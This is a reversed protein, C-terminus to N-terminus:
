KEKRANFGKFWFHRAFRRIEDTSLSRSVNQNQWDRMLAGPVRVGDNCRKFNKGYFFVDIEKELNVDPQEPIVQTEDQIIAFEENLLEITPFQVYKPNNGYDYYVDWFDRNLDGHHWVKCTYVKNKQWSEDYPYLCKVQILRQKPQEQKVIKWKGYMECANVWEVPIFDKGPIGPEEIGPLVPQEQQIPINKIFDVLADEKTDGFGVVGVQINDGKLICWQDGDMYPVPIEARSCIHDIIQPQEQQLSSVIELVENVVDWAFGMQKNRWAKIEAILRDADIYKSM